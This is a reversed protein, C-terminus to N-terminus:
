CPRQLCLRHEVREGQTDAPHASHGRRVPPDGFWTRSVRGECRGWKDSGAPGNVAVKPLQGAAGAVSAAPLDQLRDTLKRGVTTPSTVPLRVTVLLATPLGLVTARVPVPRQVPRLRDHRLEAM